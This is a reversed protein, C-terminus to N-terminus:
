TQLGLTSWRGFGIAAQSAESVMEKKRKKRWPAMAMDVAACSAPSAGGAYSGLDSSAAMQLTIASRRPSGVHGCSWRRGQVSVGHGPSWHSSAGSSARWRRAVLSWKPGSTAVGGHLGPALSAAGTSRPSGWRLVSERKPQKTTASILGGGGGGGDLERRREEGVGGGELLEHELRVGAEGAPDRRRQAVQPAQAHKAQGLVAEAALDRRLEAAEGRQLLEVEAVVVEGALYTDH